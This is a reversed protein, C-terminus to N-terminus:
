GRIAFLFSTQEVLPINKFKSSLRHHPKIQEAILLLVYM